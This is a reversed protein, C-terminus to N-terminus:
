LPGANNLRQKVFNVISNACKQVIRDPVGDYHRSQLRMDCSENVYDVVVFRGDECLAIETSFFRLHCIGAIKKVIQFLAQLRYHEIDDRSVEEYRHTIEDWWACQELGCAYHARFWFTRGNSKIPTVKEQLLYKDARYQQRAELIDHLSEAGNVVGIGGGTTNAPKIIFPRGLCALEAVSLHITEVTRCPPLIITYPTHLGAEIFELHMTAKDSVWRLTQLPEFVRGAQQCVWEQLPYFEPSTDSARDILYQFTLRQKRLSDLTEEFNQPWVIYTSLGSQQAIRELLLVFDWDYEWDLALALNYTEIQHM